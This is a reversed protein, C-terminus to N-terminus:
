MLKKQFKGNDKWSSDQLTLISRYKKNLPDDSTTVNIRDDCIKTKGNMTWNFWGGNAPPDVLVICDMESTDGEIIDLPIITLNITVHPPEPASPFHFYPSFHVFLCLYTSLNICSLLHLTQFTKKIIM